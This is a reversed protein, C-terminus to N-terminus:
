HRKLDYATPNLWSSCGRNDADFYPCAAKIQAITSEPCHQLEWHDFFKDEFDPEELLRLLHGDADRTRSGKAAKGTRPAVKHTCPKVPCKFGSAAVALYLNRWQLASDGRSQPFDAGRLEVSDELLV